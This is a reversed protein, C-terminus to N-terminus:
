VALTVEYGAFKRINIVGIDLILYQGKIGLLTGAIDPMRDFNLANIKTPYELVPYHLHTEELDYLPRIANPTFKAAISDLAQKVSTEFLNDRVQALSIFEPEGSLMKRWNTKDSIHEALIVEILGSQLRNEVEFIPLAQTAGQDIWRTPSRAQIQTKRTIGVKPSSTNALYVVHPQMCHQMAWREDRCTGQAFHCKEPRVICLDCEALARFCPFCYGQNFTKKIKRHCHKCHIIGTFVLQIKKGLFNNFEVYAEGIPLIYNIPDVLSGQM